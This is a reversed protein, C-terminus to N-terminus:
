AVVGAGRRLSRLHIHRQAGPQHAAPGDSCTAAHVVNGASVHVTVGEREPGASARGRWSWGAAFGGLSGASIGVVLALTLETTHSELWTLHLCRAAATAIAQGCRLDAAEWWGLGM